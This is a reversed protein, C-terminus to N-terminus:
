AGAPTRDEADDALLSWTSGTAKEKRLPVFTSSVKKKRERNGTVKMGLDLFSAPLHARPPSSLNVTGSVLKAGVELGPHSLHPVLADHRAM